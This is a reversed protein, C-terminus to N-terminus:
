FHKIIYKLMTFEKWQYIIVNAKIKRKFFKSHGVKLGVLCFYDIAWYSRASYSIMLNEVTNVWQFSITSFKGRNEWLKINKV